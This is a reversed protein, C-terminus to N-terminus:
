SCKLSTYSGKISIISLANLNSLTVTWFFLLFCFSLIYFFEHQSIYVGDSHRVGLLPLFLILYRRLEIANSWSINKAWFSSSIDYEWNAFHTGSKIMLSFGPSKPIDRQMGQKFVSNFNDEALFLSKIAFCMFESFLFNIDNWVTYLFTIFNKFIKFPCFLFVCIFIVNLRCRLSCFFLSFHWLFLINLM